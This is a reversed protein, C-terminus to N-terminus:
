NLNSLFDLCIQYNTMEKRYYINMNSITRLIDSSRLFGESQYNLSIESRVFCAHAQLKQGFFGLNLELHRLISNKCLQLLSFVWLRRMSLPRVKSAILLDTALAVIAKLSPTTSSNSNQLYSRHWYESIEVTPHMLENGSFSM